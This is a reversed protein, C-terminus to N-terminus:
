DFKYQELNYVEGTFRHVPQSFFDKWEPSYRWGHMKFYNLDEIDLDTEILLQQILEDNVPMLKSFAECLRRFERDASRKKRDRSNQGAKYGV